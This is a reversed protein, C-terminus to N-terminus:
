LQMKAILSQCMQKYNWTKGARRKMIVGTLLLNQVYCVEMEWRIKGTETQTSCEFVLPPTIVYNINNETLVKAIEQAVSSPDKTSTTDVNFIGKLVRLPMANEQKQQYNFNFNFNFNSQTIDESSGFVPTHLSQSQLSQNQLNQQQNQQQQQQNQQQQQQQFEEQLIKQEEAEILAATAAAATSGKKSKRTFTAMLCGPRGACNKFVVKYEEYPTNPEFSAQIYLESRSFVSEKFSKVDEPMIFRTVSQGILQFPEMQIVSLCCPAVHEFYLDTSLLVAFGAKSRKSFPEDKDKSGAFVEKLVLSLSIVQGAPSVKRIVQSVSFCSYRYYNSLLRFEIKPSETNGFGILTSAPPLSWRTLTSAVIEYDHPHVLKQIPHKGINERTNGLTSAFKDSMDSPVFAGELMVWVDSPFSVTEDHPITSVITYIPEQAELLPSSSNHETM